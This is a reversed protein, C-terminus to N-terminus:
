YLFIILKMLIWEKFSVQIIRRMGDIIVIPPREMVGRIDFNNAYAGPEASQQTMRLGPIKGTLMNLTNENKTITMESGKLTSVSGTLSARKQTGYGVVVVEGLSEPTANMRINIVNRNNIKEKIEGYGIYSVIIDKTTAPVTLTFEGDAGTATAAKASGSGATVTVGAM